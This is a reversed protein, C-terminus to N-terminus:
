SKPVRRLRQTVFGYCVWVISPFVAIVGCAALAVAQDYPSAARSQSIYYFPMSVWGIFWVVLGVVIRESATVRRRTSSRRYGLAVVIALVPLVVVLANTM